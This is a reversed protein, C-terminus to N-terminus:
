PFAAITHGHPAALAWLGTSTLAVIVLMLGAPAAAKWFPVARHMLPHCIASLAFTGVVAVSGASLWLAFPAGAIVYRASRVLWEGIPAAALLALVITAFAICVGLGPDSPGSCAGRRALVRPDDLNDMTSASAAEEPTRWGLAETIIRAEQPSPAEDIPWGRRVGLRPKLGSPGKTRGYCILLLKDHRSLQGCFSRFAASARSTWIAIRARALCARPHSVEVAFLTCSVGYARLVSSLAKAQAVDQPSHVIEVDAAM